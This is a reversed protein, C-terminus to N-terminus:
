KILDIIKQANQLSIGRHTPLNFVKQSVQEAIPCSGPEYNVAELDADQPAVVTDYWDGLFVGASKAKLMIADRTESQLPYRLHVPFSQPLVNTREFHDPLKQRYFAYIAQRHENKTKLRKLQSYALHALSNPFLAPFWKPKIAKKESGEIVRATLGLNKCLYLWIKGLYIPYFVKGLAFFVPHLLHRLIITFPLAPLKLHQLKEIASRDNVYAAGGRVSSIIKDVGFSFIAAHGFTGLKQGNFEGGLAHACDEIVVLDHAAAIDIISSLDACFGFTHQVIIARTQPTIKEEIKEPDLNYTDAEIDCYVPKAGTYIVANPVVVCTFAQLLVEDGEGVGFAKLVEYLATRGSDFTFIEGEKIELIEGLKQQVKGPYPGRRWFYWRWPLLLYGLSNLTDKWTNNPAFSTIM